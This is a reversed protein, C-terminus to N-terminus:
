NVIQTLLSNCKIIHTPRMWDISLNLASILNGLSSFEKRLVAADIGEQTEAQQDTSYIESKGAGVIM